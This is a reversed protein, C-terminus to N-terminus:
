LLFIYTFSYTMIPQSSGVDQSDGLFPSHILDWFLPVEYRTLLCCSWCSEALLFWLSGVADLVGFFVVPVTSGELLPFIDVLIVVLLIDDLQHNWVWRLFISTLKSCKGLYPHFYFTNSNGGGLIDVSVFDVFRLFCKLARQELSISETNM